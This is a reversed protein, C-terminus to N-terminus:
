KRRIISSAPAPIDFCRDHSSARAASCFLHDLVGADLPLGGVIEACKVSCVWVDVARRVRYVPFMQNVFILENSRATAGLLVKTGFCRLPSKEGHEPSTTSAIGVVYTARLSTKMKCSRKQLLRGGLCKLTRGSM